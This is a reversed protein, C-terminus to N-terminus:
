DSRFALTSTLHDFWRGEVVDHGFRTEKSTARAVFQAFYGHRARSGDEMTQQLIRTLIPNVVELGVEERVERRLGELVTEGQELRGDPTVWADNWGSQPPHRVLLIRGQGRHVLRRRVM